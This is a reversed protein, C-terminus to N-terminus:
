KYKDDLKYESYKMNGHVNKVRGVLGNDKLRVLCGNENDRVDLLEDVKGTVYKGSSDGDVEIDVLNGYVVEGTMVGDMSFQKHVDQWEYILRELGIENFMKKRNLKIKKKHHIRWLFLYRKDTIMAKPLYEKLIYLNKQLETYNNYPIEIYFKSEGTILLFHVAYMETDFRSSRNGTIEYTGIIFNKTL